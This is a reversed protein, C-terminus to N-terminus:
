VVHDEILSKTDIGAVSFNSWSALILAKLAAIADQTKQDALLTLISQIKDSQGLTAKIASLAINVYQVAEDDFWSGPVLARVRDDLDKQVQDWDITTQFKQLQRMVFSIVVSMVMRNMM